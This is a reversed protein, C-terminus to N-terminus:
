SSTKEKMLHVGRSENASLSICCKAHRKLLNSVEARWILIALVIMLGSLVWRYTFPAFYGILIAGVIAGIMMAPTEISRNRDWLPRDFELSSLPKTNFPIIDAVMKYKAAYYNQIKRIARLDHIIHGGWREARMISLLSIVYILGGTSLTLEIPIRSLSGYVGFMASISFGVVAIYLNFYTARMQQLHQVQGYRQKYIELMVENEPTDPIKAM